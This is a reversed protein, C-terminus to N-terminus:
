DPFLWYVRGDADHGVTILDAIHEHTVRYRRMLAAGLRWQEVLDFARPEGFAAINPLARPGGPGDVVRLMNPALAARDLPSDGRLLLERTRRTLDPRDDPPLPQSLSTSGPAFAEAVVYGLHRQVRASQLRVNTMVLVAVGAAPLRLYQTTFGPMGGGHAHFPAGRMRGTFWGCGYPVALGSALGRPALLEAWGAKSLLPGGMLGADWRVADRASMLVPGDAYASYDSAMRPAHRYGDGVKLYPEARRPVLEQAADLRADQLGAPALVHRVLYDAFAEGSAAEIVYGALIYNMNTYSWAEGEAFPPSGAAAAAIVEARTHPQTSDFADTEYEPLGSTHHLCSGVSRRAWEDPIDPVFKGLPDALAVKGRDVQQLLAIATLHKGVSGVHFLTREDVPVEFPLSAHGFGCAVSGGRYVIGLGLGPVGFRALLTTLTSQFGAPLGATPGRFPLGGTPRPLPAAASPLACAAVGAGLAGLGGAIFERRGTSAM